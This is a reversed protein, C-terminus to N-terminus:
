RAPDKDAITPSTLAQRREDRPQRALDRV